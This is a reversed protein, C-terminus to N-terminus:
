VLVKQVGAEYDLSNEKTCFANENGIYKDFFAVAKEYKEKSISEKNVDNNVIIKKDIRKLIEQFKRCINVMGMGDCIIHHVNLFLFNKDKVTIYCIKFLWKDEKTFPEKISLDAWKEVEERSDFYLHDIPFNIDDTFYVKGSNDVNKRLAKNEAVLIRFNYCFEDYSINENLTVLGGINCVATNGGARDMNFINEEFNNLSDKEMFDGM